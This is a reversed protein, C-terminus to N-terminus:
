DSTHIRIWSRIQIRRDGLLFLLFVQIGVATHPIQSKKDNFIIYTYWWFTILLFGKKKIQKKNGDQPDIVFIDPDPDADPDPDMQGSAHIRPDLIDHIQLM